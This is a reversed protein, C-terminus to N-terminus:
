VVPRTLAPYCSELGIATDCSGSPGCQCTELKVDGIFELNLNNCSNLHICEVNLVHVADCGRENNIIIEAGDCAGEHGCEIAAIEFIKKPAAATAHRCEFGGPPASFNIEMTLGECSSVGKANPMKCICCMNKM